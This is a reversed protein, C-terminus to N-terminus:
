SCKSKAGERRRRMRVTINNQTATMFSSRFLESLIGVPFVLFFVDHWLLWSAFLLFGQSITPGAAVCVVADTLHRWIWSCSARKEMGM